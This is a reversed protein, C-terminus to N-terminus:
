EKVRLGLGRFESMGAPLATVPKKGDVPYAKELDCGIDLVSIDFLRVVDEEDVGLLKAVLRFSAVPHLCTVADHDCSYPSPSPSYVLQFPM